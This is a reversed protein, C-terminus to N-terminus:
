GGAISGVKQCPQGGAIFGLPIECVCWRGQAEWGGPLETFGIVDNGGTPRELDFGGAKHRVLEVRHLRSEGFVTPNGGVFDEGFLAGNHVVYEHANVRRSFFRAFGSVTGTVPGGIDWAVAAGAVGVSERSLQRGARPYVKLDVVGWVSRRGGVANSDSKVKGFCGRKLLDFGEGDRVCFQLNGRASFLVSFLERSGCGEVYGDHAEHRVHM